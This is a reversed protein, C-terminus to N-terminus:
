KTTSEQTTSTSSTAPQTTSGGTTDTTDTTGTTETTTTTTAPETTPPVYREICIAQKGLLEYKSAFQSITYKSRTPTGPDSIYIYNSDHGKLVSVHTGHPYSFQYEGNATKVWWTNLTYPTFMDITAWIVMPQGADLHALLEAVSSGTINKAVYTTAGGHAAILRNMAATIVPAFAGYGPREGSGKQTPDGVFKEYISPGYVKGNESYLDARPIENIVEDLSVNFGYYKLLMTASAGECGTPYKPFQRVYPVNLM